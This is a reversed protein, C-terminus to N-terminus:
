GLEPVDSSNRKVRRMAKLAVLEVEDVFHRLTVDEWPNLVSATWVLMWGDHVVM